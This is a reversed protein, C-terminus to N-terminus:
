KIKNITFTYGDFSKSWLCQLPPLQIPLGNPVTVHVYTLFLFDGPQWLQTCIESGGIVWAQKFSRVKDINTITEVGPVKRRSVVINRRNPLPGGLTNWTKRGMIVTENYTNMKFWKLDHPIQWPLKNGLAIKHDDSVALIFRM